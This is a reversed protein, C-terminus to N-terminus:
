PYSVRLALDLIKEILDNYELGGRAAAEAYDEYMAIEPNPNAEIVFLKGDPTLRMDIRGYGRMQLLRFVRKAVTVIEESTKGPLSEAFVNQIGWRERYDPDWKAKYSAYRPEGDPVESFVIERPPFVVLRDNGLVAAYIERGEIYREIIADQGMREHIFAARSLAQEPTEAFSDKAIGVSGEEALPKVIVPFVSGTLKRLPQSRHSVVFPPVPVRHHKLIKKSLAKDQCIMLARFGCGTYPMRCIELIGALISEYYRSGHFTEVFNWVIDPKVRDLHDLLERPHEHLPGFFVEHGNERLTALVHGETFWDEREAMLKEYDVDSMPPEHVEFIM